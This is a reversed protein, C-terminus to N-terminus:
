RAKTSRKKRREKRKQEEGLDDLYERRAQILAWTGFLIYGLIPVIIFVSQKIM